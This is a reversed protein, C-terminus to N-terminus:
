GMGDKNRVGVGGGGIGGKYDSGCLGIIDEM